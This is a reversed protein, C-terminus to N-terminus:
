FLTLNKLVAHKKFIGRSDIHQRWRDFAPGHDDKLETAIHCMEHALTGLKQTASNNKIRSLVIEYKHRSDHAEGAAGFYKDEWNDEEEEEQENTWRVCVNNTLQSDFFKKNILRYWKKLVPDSRVTM